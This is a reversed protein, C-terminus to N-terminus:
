RQESRALRRERVFERIIRAEDAATRHAHAGFLRAFASTEPGIAFDREIMNSFYHANARANNGQPWDKLGYRQHAWWGAACSPTCCADRQEDFKMNVWRQMDFPARRAQIHDLLDALDFLNRDAQEETMQLM